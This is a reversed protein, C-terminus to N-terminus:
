WALGAVAPTMDMLALINEIEGQNFNTKAGPTYNEDISPTYNSIPLYRYKFTDMDVRRVVIMWQNGPERQWHTLAHNTFFEALSVQQHM